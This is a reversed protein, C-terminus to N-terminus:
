APINNLHVTRSVKAAGCVMDVEFVVRVSSAGVHEVYAPRAAVVEGNLCSKANLRVTMKRGAPMKRSLHLAKDWLAIIEPHRSEDFNSIGKIVSKEMEREGNFLKFEKIALETDCM